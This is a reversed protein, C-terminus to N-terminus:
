RKTQDNCPYSRVANYNKYAGSKPDISVTSPKREKMIDFLRANGAVFLFTSQTRGNGHWGYPYPSSYVQTCHAFHLYSPNKSTSPKFFGGKTDGSWTWNGKFSKNPVPDGLWSCVSFNCTRNNNDRGGEEWPYWRQALPCQMMKRNSLNASYAPPLFGLHALAWDYRQLMTTDSRYENIADGYTWDKYSEAYLILYLYTQRINNLCQTGLATRRANNLAPLLMGALIAIIAIVVLLEILTFSSKGHIKKM